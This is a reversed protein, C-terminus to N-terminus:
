NKTFLQAVGHYSIRPDNLNKISFLIKDFEEHCINFGSMMYKRVRKMTSEPYLINNLM